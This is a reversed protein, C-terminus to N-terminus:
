KHLAREYVREFRRATRDWTLDDLVRRRAAAGLRAALERDGLLRGIAEALAAPDREPVLLGHQGDAIVDPIGALRSAVIPRAAAMGELLANPLGDVNGKQDRISPVAYVDAAAIYRAARERELQGPFYVSAAVGLERARRELEERLDGYGCIALVARPERALIAPLAELLYTLGKKYVLRSVTVILPTDPALGLEARVTAGAGPAPQFAAPDVGYPIVEVSDPRAGLRVARDRLDGSCATVAAAARFTGAAALSLPAAREALYVDSGHLSVVLPLGRMRAVLAAPAGNPLVWHAHILDFSPRGVVLSSPGLASKPRQDNTTPRQDRTVRLMELMGAGLALPAAALVAGKLGVDAQLSEAYGWVNLARAPSYRFFHLHVGREVPARRVDRHFPAVVHVTHGRRALGAAIEEIFPATTEGPYKPYSSTLMCINM